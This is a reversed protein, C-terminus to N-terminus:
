ASYRCQCHPRRLPFMLAKGTAASGRVAPAQATPPGLCDVECWADQRAHASQCGAAGTAAPDTASSCEEEFSAPGRGGPSSKWRGVGHHAREVFLALDLREVAGLWPQRDLRPTKSFFNEVANLRSVSTPTFHFIWRPHRSLWALVTPHKHTAYSDIVRCRM